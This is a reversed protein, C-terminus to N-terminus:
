VPVNGNISGTAKITGDVELDGNHRVNGNTTSDGNVVADGNVIVSAADIEVRGNDIAICTSGDLSQIVLADANKGNIAWDKLSEPVFLSDSFSHFRKTNARDELGGRQLVLSIDRDCAQIWGFDGAKLPVSIFFGGGGLRHVPINVLQARNLAQGDTTTMMVLPQVVARNTARDYSVVKAPLMVELTRFVDEKFAKMSGALSQDDAPNTNPKLLESM